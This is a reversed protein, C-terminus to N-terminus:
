SKGRLERRAALVVQTGDLLVDFIAYLEEESLGRLYDQSAQYGLDRVGHLLSIAEQVSDIPEPM